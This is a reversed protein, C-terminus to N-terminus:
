PVTYTLTTEDFGVAYFKQATSPDYEWGDTATGSGVEAITSSETFPNDPPNILYPGFEGDAQLNGARDTKSTLNDWLQDITPYTQHDSRYRELATRVGRLTSATSAGRADDTATTFKPIVIVALIALIMLVIMMEVLTFGVRKNHM